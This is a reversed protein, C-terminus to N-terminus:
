VRRRRMGIIFAFAALFVISIVSGYIIDTQSIFVGAGGPQDNPGAPIFCCVLDVLMGLMGFETSSPNAHNFSELWCWGTIIPHSDCTGSFAPTTLPGGSDTMEASITAGEDLLRQVQNVCGATLTCASNFCVGGAGLCTDQISNESAGIFWDNTGKAIPGAGNGPISSNNPASNVQLAVSYTSSIAGFASAVGTYVTAMAGFASSSPSVSITIVDSASQSVRASYVSQNLPHAGGVNQSAIKTYSNQQSDSVTVTPFTSDYEEVIVMDNAKPTVTM